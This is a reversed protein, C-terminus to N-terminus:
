NDDPDAEGNLCEYCGGREPIIEHSETWIACGPCTEINYDLLRDEVHNIDCGLLEAVQELDPSEVGVVLAHVAQLVNNEGHMRKAEENATTM